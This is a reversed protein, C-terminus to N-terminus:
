SSAVRTSSCLIIICCAKASKQVGGLLEAELRSPTFVISVWATFIWFPFLLCFVALFGQCEDWHNSRGPEIGAHNWGDSKSYEGRRVLGTLAHFDEMSPRFVFLGSNLLSKPGDAFALQKRGTEAGLCRWLESIPGTAMMDVDVFAGIEFDTLTFALLKVWDWTRGTVSDHIEKRRLPPRVCAFRLSLEEAAQMQKCSIEQHVDGFWMLVIDGSFHGVTRLSKALVLFALIDVDRSAMTVIVQRSKTSARVQKLDALSGAKCDCSAGRADAGRLTPVSIAAEPPERLPAEPPEQLDERTGTKPVDLSFGLSSELARQLLFCALLFLLVWSACLRNM